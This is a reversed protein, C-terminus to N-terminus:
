DPFYYTLHDYRRVEGRYFRIYQATLDRSLGYKNMFECSKMTRLVVRLADDRKVDDKDIVLNFELSM